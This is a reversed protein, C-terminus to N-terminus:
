AMHLLREAAKVWDVLTLVRPDEPALGAARDVITRLLPVKGAAAYGPNYYLARSLGILYVHEEACLAIAERFADEAEDFAGQGLLTVGRQFHSRSRAREPTEQLSGDPARPTAASFTVPRPYRVPAGPPPVPMPPVQANADDARAAPPPPPPPPPPPEVPSPATATVALPPPVFASPAGSLSPL